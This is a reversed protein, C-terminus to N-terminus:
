QKLIKDFKNVKIKVFFIMELEIFSTEPSHM